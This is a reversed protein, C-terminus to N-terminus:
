SENVAVRRKSFNLIEIGIVTGKADLDAQMGDDGFEVTEKVVSGERKM